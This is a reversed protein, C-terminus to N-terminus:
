QEFEIYNELKVIIFKTSQCQFDINMLVFYKM